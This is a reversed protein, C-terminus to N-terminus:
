TEEFYIPDIIYYAPRKGVQKILQKELLDKAIKRVTVESINMENSLEKVSLGNNFHFFHNQALIFMFEFSKKEKKIRTDKTLKDYASEILQVKEKLEFLMEKLTKLIIELFTDIFYNMEGRNAISNTIEFAKLYNTKYKNCGRSLSLSPINGLTKSLYLSSIFRSTRGNGDYFPHIYGFFYHGIAVKIIEPVEDSQNMFVLLKEVENIIKVEPTLGRHIVKGTGSKKLVHTVEKRFIEGDPLESEEIEGETIEDYIKRINVPSAPLSTNGNILNMYSKVMSNFRNNVNKNMKINKVSRAIEEKSSKVGELENTNFLEEVLCELIFHDKAVKPLQNFIFNLEGSLKYIKAVIDIIYNTPVYFLQFSKPQNMPKIFLMLRKAADSNIRQIYKDEFENKEVEYFFKYLYRM